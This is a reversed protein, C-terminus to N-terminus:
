LYSRLKEKWIVYGSGNIHIDDMTLSQDLVGNKQFAPWLDVCTLHQEQCFGKLWSNFTDVLHEKKAQSPGLPLVTQMIIETHPSLTRITEVIATSNVKLSDLPIDNLIDNIGVDLFIKRPHRMAIEGIRGRIHCSRNGSIGRNKFRADRFIENLPFGETISNGVFVYDVTDIPLMGLVSQRSRNWMDFYAIQANSSPGSHSFYFRKGAFSLLMIANLALSLYAIRKLTM